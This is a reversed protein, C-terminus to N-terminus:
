SPASVPEFNSCVSSGMRRPRAIAPAVMACVQQGSVHASATACRAERSRTLRGFLSIQRLTRATSEVLTTRVYEGVSVIAFM